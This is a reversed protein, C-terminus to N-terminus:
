SPFGLGQSTICSLLSQAKLWTQRDRFLEKRIKNNNYQPRFEQNHGRGKESAGPSTPPHVTLSTSSARFTGPRRQPGDWCLAAEKLQQSLGCPTGKLVGM